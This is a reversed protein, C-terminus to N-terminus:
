AFYLNVAPCKVQVRKEEPVSSFQILEHPNADSFGYKMISAQNYSRYMYNPASWVLILRGERDKTQKDPFMWVYGEQVLQHSRTILKLRNNHLFERVHEPGFMYGDGRSNQRWQTIGQDPDSWYLGSLAKSVDCWRNEANIMEVFPLNPALGGHVSFVRGDIVAACPLLDFAEHCASFVAICGYLRVCEHYFGYTLSLERSEHNGRLLYFDRYKLKYLILLLFTNVSHHGRDVYDGMFLFQKNEPGGAVKDLLYVLDSLQGHIDGVIVIPSRLTLVNDETCLVQQVKRIIAIVDDQPLIEGARAKEILADYNM